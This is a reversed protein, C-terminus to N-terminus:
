QLPSYQLFRLYGVYFMISILQLHIKLFKLHEYRSYLRINLFLAVVISIMIPIVFSVVSIVDSLLAM